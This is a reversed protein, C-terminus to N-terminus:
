FTISYDGTRLRQLQCFGVVAADIAHESMSDLNLFSLEPYIRVAEKIRVKSDKILKLRDHEAKNSPNIAKKAATSEIRYLPRWASWAKVTEEVVKVVEVLVGYANPNRPNYFPSECAIQLPQYHNFTNTLRIKIEDMRVARPPYFEEKWAQVPRGGCPKNADITFSDIRLLAKDKIRVELAAVGMTTSGPDIGVIFFSEPGSLTIPYM